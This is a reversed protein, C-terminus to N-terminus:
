SVVVNDGDIHYGTWKHEINDSVILELDDFNEKVTWNVLRALVNELPFGLEQSVVNLRDYTAQSVQIALTKKYM